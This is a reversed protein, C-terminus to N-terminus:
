DLKASISDEPAVGEPLTRLYLGLLREAQAPLDGQEREYLRAALMVFLESRRGRERALPGDDEWLSGRLSGWGAGKPRFIFDALSSEALLRQLGEPAVAQASAPASADAAFIPIPEKIAFPARQSLPRDVQPLWNALLLQLIRRSRVDDRSTRLRARQITGRVNRPLVRSLWQGLPGGALPLDDVIVRLERLDRFHAIYEVKLIDSLLPTMADAALVDDLAQRLLKADVRRDDTWRVIARSAVQHLSAGISRQIMFGRKGVHRSCRLISKYWKWAEEMEGNEEHRSGRLAAMNGLERVGQVVPLLTDLTAEDPRHYLADPRDTGERWLDLAEQNDKVAAQAATSLKSWTAETGVSDWAGRSVPRLRKFAQRYLTFANADDTVAISRNFATVDFPDGIDPVHSVDRMGFIWLGLILIAAFVIGSVAIRRQNRQIWLALGRRICSLRVCHATFEEM